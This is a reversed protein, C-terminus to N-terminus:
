PLHLVHQLALATLPLHLEQAMGASMLAQNMYGLPHVAEHALIIQKGLALAYGIELQVGASTGGDLLALLVDSRQLQALDLRVAAVPDTDNMQYGDDRLACFVEHGLRELQALIAELWERYEAAVQGTQADVKSSYSAAVFIHM